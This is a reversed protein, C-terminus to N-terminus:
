ENGGDTDQTEEEIPTAEELEVGYIPEAKPLECGDDSLTNENKEEHDAEFLHEEGYAIGDLPIVIPCLLRDAVKNVKKEFIVILLFIICGAVTIGLGFTFTKPRYKFEIKHEGANEIDFAIMADETGANHSSDGLIGRTEVRKGDVFIQWGEDYPISTFVTSGNEPTTITGHLHDESSNESIQLQHAALKNIANEFVEEDLYYLVGVNNTVYLAEGEIKLNSTIMEGAPFEGINIAREKGSGFVSGFSKGEVSLNFTRPFESPIYLYCHYTTDEVDSEPLIASYKVIGTAGKSSPAYKTLPYKYNQGSTPAMVSSTCSDTVVSHQLEKFVEVTQDEGLMATIIANVRDFPNLYDGMDIGYISGDVTYALSLAFKNQYAIYAEDSAFTNYLDQDKYFNNLVNGENATIVGYIPSVLDKQKVLAYKIGLLSDSVVNGGYYRSEHSTGFYGMNAIFNITSANLTSTSSTLGFIDVAMNDNVKRHTIEDMRYFFSKDMAKVTNTINRLDGIYNSYTSYGTYVVDSGLDLCNSLGNCFVEVSVIIALVFSMSKNSIKHKIIAMVLLYIGVLLATFWVCELTLLKGVEHNRDNSSDGLVFTAFEFKQAIMVLTILIGGGFFLVNSKSRDLNEFAKYATVLLVFCLMFSYRYNLWNPKQFGHWIIDVPSIVFSLIFFAILVATLAKERVSIRSSCFFVPILLLTIVGCYVFPLGEPRVTDYSCPLFKVFMDLIDFRTTFEWNTTSFTTKGFTLSYYASLLIVAAIAVALISFFGIRLFSKALHGKEGYPNNRKNENHMFYYVFFYVATFICLMFGIYFNSMLAVALSVTYLKYHGKKILEEIGYAILPLWIVADIWMSNHQQVVCYASLAYLMSFTVVSIKNFKEKHKSLQHLYFGFTAGCLGVKILFIVLLADLIMDQPFLAVIYSLPSALYYAYMGMFEGGMARSFSYLLSADGYVFNRLAEFFDVYQGNLDLVLVSGDGFPHIEMALYIIYMIVAPIIFALSLYRYEFFRALVREKFTKKEPALEAIYTNNVMKFEMKM